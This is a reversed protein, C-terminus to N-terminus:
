NRSLYQLEKVVDAADPLESWTAAVVGDHVIFTRPLSRYLPRAFRPEVAGVPFAAAYEFMLSTLHETGDIILGTVHEVEEHQAVDNMRNIDLQLDTSVVSFLFVVRTGENIDVGFLGDVPWSEFQAGPKLSTVFNDAPISPSFWTVLAIAMGSFLTVAGKWAFGSAKRRWLVLLSFVLFAIMITDEIIVVEPGRHILNGFCGCNEGLGISMGYWTIGIFFLLMAIMLLITIRPLFNIVLAMALMVEVIIFTWAALLSLEPFIGYQAIQEAFAVPDLAKMTAALFFVAAVIIMFARALIFLIRNSALNM